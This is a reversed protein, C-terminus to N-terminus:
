PKTLSIKNRNFEKIKNIFQKWDAFENNYIIPSNLAFTKKLALKNQAFSYAADFNNEKFKNSFAAPLSVPKTGVPVEVEIDDKAYIMYEMDMPTQRDDKPTYGTLSSPVYDISLYKTKGVITVKNEIEVDAEVTIPIDRNEFDSSKVNTAVINADGMEALGKVFDAKKNAPINNYVYHFYNKAEGSFSVVVKGTMMDDQLKLKATTLILNDDPKTQPVRELKHTSGNEVLVTKGQIRYANTGLAAFKETGDVFYVKDKIYLVSIAHNDVCMSQVEDHNYPIDRTGIWAFHANLGALKLMETVLNAMGKCDSYKNKYVEQVTQPVFGAYGEEFAVYRINDQVWYYIARAKDEDTSKGAVLRNVEAKLVDPKNEAKKYLLNYWNYLDAQSGFGNYKKQDITFSRVTIILHPLYYPRALAGPERKVDVLKDAAYTYVTFDGDKKTTKKINYGAFNKEQIDLNLWQPVKFSVTHSKIPIGSHFFVRTLYKADTYRYRYDFLCRQGSEAAQMGYFLGYNDDLYISEDTLSVKRPEYRQSKFGNRYFVKFDYDELKVFSNYPLLYGMYTLNEVSVMEVLGDEKATVIPQNDIGKATGFSISQTINYAGFEAKKSLRKIYAAEAAGVDDATQAQSLANLSVLVGLLIKSLISYKM